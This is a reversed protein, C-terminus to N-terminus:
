IIEPTESRENKLDLLEKLIRTKIPTQDENKGPNKPTLFTNKQQEPDNTRLLKTVQRLNPDGEPIM